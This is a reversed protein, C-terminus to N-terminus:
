AGQDALDTLDALDDTLDLICGLDIWDAGVPAPGIDSLDM